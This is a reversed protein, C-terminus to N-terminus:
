ELRAAGALSRYLDMWREGIAAPDHRTALVARGADTLRAALGADARLARVADALEGPTAGSLYGASAGAELGAAAAPTAVVPVGRAWAELIKMRVGSAIRLAVVHIANPPFLDRSDSPSSHREVGAPVPSRDDGFLHLRAGPLRDRVLPWVERVFWRAGDRNPIWGGGAVVIPPDGPLPSASAPLVGPFPTPLHVVNGRGRALARLRDADRATLAVTAAVRAVAAGEWRRLLAAQWRLWPAAIPIARAAGAWLDSEVNQARLVIPIGRRRVPELMALTQLQEAHAIDFAGSEAVTHEITRTIAGDTQRVITAPTGPRLVTLLWPSPHRPVYVAHLREIATTPSVASGTAGAGSEAGPRPSRAVPPPSVLTVEAGVGTIARLTQDLVQRGGDTPPWPCKTAVV